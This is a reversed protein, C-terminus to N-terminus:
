TTPAELPAGGSSSPATFSRDFIGRSRNYDLQGSKILKDILAAKKMPDTEEDIRQRLSDFNAQMDRAIPSYRETKVSGDPNRAVEDIMVPSGDPNKAGSPDPIKKGTKVEFDGTDGFEYAGGKSSMATHWALEAAELNANADQIFKDDEAKKANTRVTDATSAREKILAKERELSANAEIERQKVAASTELGRQATAAATEIGRQATAADAEIKRQQTGADIRAGERQFNRDFQLQEGLLRQQDRYMEREFNFQNSQMVGAQRLNELSKNAMGQMGSGIISNTANKVMDAGFIDGM